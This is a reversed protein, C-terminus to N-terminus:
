RIEIFNQRYISCLESIFIRFPNSNCNNGEFNIPTKSFKQGIGLYTGRFDFLPIEVQFEAWLYALYGKSYGLLKLSFSHERRSINFKSFSTAQWM